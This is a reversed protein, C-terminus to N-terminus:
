RGFIGKIKDGVKKTGEKIAKGAKGVPTEAVAQKMITNTIAEDISMIKKLLKINTMRIYIYGLM